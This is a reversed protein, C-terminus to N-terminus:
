SRQTQKEVASLRARIEKTTEEIKKKEAVLSEEVEEVKKIFEEQTYQQKMNTQGSVEGNNITTFEPERLLQIM